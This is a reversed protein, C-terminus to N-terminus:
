NRTRGARSPAKPAPARLHAPLLAAPGLAGSAHPSGAPRLGVPLGSDGAIRGACPRLGRSAGRFRRGREAPCDAGALWRMRTSPLLRECYVPSPPM